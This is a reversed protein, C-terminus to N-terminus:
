RCGRVDLGDRQGLGHQLDREADMEAVTFSGRLVPQRDQFFDVMDPERLCADTKCYVRDGMILFKFVTQVQPKFRSDAVPVPIERVPMVHM